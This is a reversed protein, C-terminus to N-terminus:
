IPVVSLTFEGGGIRGQRCQAWEFASWKLKQECHPRHSPADVTASAPEGVPPASSRTRAGAAKMRVMTAVGRGPLRVPEAVTATRRPIAVGALPLDGVPMRQAPSAMPYM